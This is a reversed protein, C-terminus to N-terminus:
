SRHTLLSDSPLPAKKFHRNQRCHHVRKLTQRINSYRPLPDGELTAIKVFIAFFGRAVEYSYEGFKPLNEEKEGNRANRYM